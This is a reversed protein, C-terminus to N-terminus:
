ELKLSAIYAIVDARDKKDSLMVPMTTDPVKATPNNLFGDLSKTDWTIGFAKLAPSYMAFNPESAAKRGILGFLNPGMTPGTGDSSVGHCFSCLQEFTVKGRTTDGGEANGEATFIAPAVLSCALVTLFSRWVTSTPASKIQLTM